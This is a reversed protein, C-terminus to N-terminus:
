SDMALGRHRTQLRRLQNRKSPAGFHLGYLFLSLPLAWAKPPRREIIQCLLWGFSLTPLPSPIQSFVHSPCFAHPAINARQKPHQVSCCFIISILYTTAKTPRWIVFPCLLWGFVRLRLWPPVPSSTQGPPVAPSGMM